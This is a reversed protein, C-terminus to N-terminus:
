TTVDVSFWKDEGEFGACSLKYILGYGSYGSLKDPAKIRVSRRITIGSKIDGLHVRAVVAKSLSGYRAYARTTALGPFDFGEPAFFCVQSDQAIDDRTLRVKFAMEREEGPKFNFPSPEEFNLSLRPTKIEEHRALAEPFAEVTRKQYGEETTLAVEQVLTLTRYIQKIAIVIAIAALAWIFLVLAGRMDFQVSASSGALSAGLTNIVLSGLLLLGPYLVCGHVSLPVYGREATTLDAEAKKMMKEIKSVTRKFRKVKEKTTAKQLEAQAESKQKELQDLNEGETRQRDARAKEIARGLLSVALVFVTVTVVLLTIALWFILEHIPGTVM